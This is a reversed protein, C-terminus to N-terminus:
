PLRLLVPLLGLNQLLEFSEAIPVALLFLMADAFTGLVKPPMVTLTPVDRWLRPNPLFRPVAALYSAYAAGYREALVTEEQLVVVRFILWALTAFLVATVLSGLQAGAGAAGLISFSYLPNRSVSYPGDTVFQVIKRGGIYLSCWTRGLICIVIAVIGVWEIAEHTVPGSRYRSTTVAFMMVGILIAISLVLKRVIQVDALTV